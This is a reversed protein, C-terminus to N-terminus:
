LEENTLGTKFLYISLSPLITYYCLYDWLGMWEKGTGLIIGALSLAAMLVGLIFTITRM